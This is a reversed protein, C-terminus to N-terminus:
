IVGIVTLFSCISLIIGITAFVRRIIGSSKSFGSVSLVFGIVALIPVLNGILYDKIFYSYASVLCGIFAMSFLTKFFGLVVFLIIVIIGIGIVNWAGGFQDVLM